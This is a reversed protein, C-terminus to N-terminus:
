VICINIILNFLILNILDFSLYVFNQTSIWRYVPTSYECHYGSFSQRILFAHLIYGQYVSFHIIKSQPNKFASNGMKQKCVNSFNVFNLVKWSSFRHYRLFSHDSLSKVFVTTFVTRKQSHFFGRIVVVINGFWM